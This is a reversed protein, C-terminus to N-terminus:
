KSVLLKESETNSRELKKVTYKFVCDNPIQNANLKCIKKKNGTSNTDYESIVALNFTM